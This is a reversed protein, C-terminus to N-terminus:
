SARPTAILLTNEVTVESPVYTWLQATMGKHQCYLVRGRDIMRKAMRGLTRRSARPLSSLWAKSHGPENPPLTPLWLDFPLDPQLQLGQQQAQGGGEETGRGVVEGCVAWASVLRLVEFQPATLGCVTRWWDQGTYAEWTCAHHCCTAIAVGAVCPELPTYVHQEHGLEVPSPSPVPLLPMGCELIARLTLDTAGGCLHKGGAVVPGPQLQLGPVHLHAIDARVRAWEAGSKRLSNDAKRGRGSSGARDVLVFRCSGHALTDIALSLGGKGAGFEVFTAAPLTVPPAPLLRTSRLACVLAAQQLAHRYMLKQSMSMRGGAGSVAASVPASSITSTRGATSLNASEQLYEGVRGYGAGATCGEHQATHHIGMHVPVAARYAQVLAHLLHPFTLGGLLQQLRLAREDAACAESAVFLDLYGQHARAANEADADAAADGDEAQEQVEVRGIGTDHMGLMARITRVATLEELSTFGFNCDKKYWPSSELQSQYKSVNCLKKHHELNSVSTKCDKCYQKSDSQDHYVCYLSQKCRMGSCFRRKAPMWLSCRTPDDQVRPSSGKDM